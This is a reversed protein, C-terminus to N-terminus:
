LYHSLLAYLSCVLIREIEQKALDADEKNGRITITAMSVSISIEAKSQSRIREMTKGQKGLLANYSDPNFSLKHRIQLQNAVIQLQGNSYKRSLSNNSNIWKKSM